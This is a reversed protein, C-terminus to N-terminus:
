RNWGEFHRPTLQHAKLVEAPPLSSQAIFEALKHLLADRLADGELPSHEKVMGKIYSNLVLVLDSAGSSVDEASSVFGDARLNTQEFNKRNHDRRFINTELISYGWLAAAVFRHAMINVQNRKGKVRVRILADGRKDFRIAKPNGKPDLIQGAEYRYGRELMHRIIFNAQSSM